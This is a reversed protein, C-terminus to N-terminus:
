HGQHGDHGHGSKRDGIQGRIEGGPSLSSHVNAYAVGARMAAIVEALEGALIQQPAPTPAVVNAAEIVGEFEGSGPTCTQTGAPGALPGGPAGTGCLWIVIVGNVGKQAVHIHAQTVDGQLGTYSLKWEILQEDDSIKAEFEGTAVTSVVPVEEFGRLKTRFRDERDASAPLAVLSVALALLGPIAFAPFRSKM